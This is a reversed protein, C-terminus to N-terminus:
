VPTLRTLANNFDDVISEVTSESLEIRVFKPNTSAICRYGPKIFQSLIALKMNEVCGNYDEYCQIPQEDHNDASLVPPILPYSTINYLQRLLVYKSYIDRKIKSLEIDCTIDAISRGMLQEMIIDNFKLNSYNISPENNMKACVNTYCTNRLKYFSNVNGVEYIYLDESKTLQRKLRKCIQNIRCSQINLKMLDFYHFIDSYINNIELAFDYNMLDFINEIVPLVVKKFYKELTDCDVPPSYTNKIFKVPGMSSILANIATSIYTSLKTEYVQEM